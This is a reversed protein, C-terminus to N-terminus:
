ISKSRIIHEECRRLRELTGTDHIFDETQYGFFRLSSQLIKPFLYNEFNFIERDMLSIIEPGFICLGANSLIGADKHDENKSIFKIVRGEESLKLIDSDEPHSSPHVLATMHSKKVQHFLEMKKLNVNCVLDGSIYASTGNIHKSAFKLPGGSGLAYPEISHIIPIGFNNGQGFYEVIKEAMHGNMMVIDSIGQGKAWDVLHHLIPKGAVNVLPKPIDKTLPYLREGKGGTSIFLRM